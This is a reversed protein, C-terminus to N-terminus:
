IQVLVIFVFLIAFIFMFNTQFSHFDTLFQQVSEFIFNFYFKSNGLDEEKQILATKLYSDNKEEFIEAHKSQRIAQEL